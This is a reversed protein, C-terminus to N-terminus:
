PCKFPSPCTTKSTARLQSWPGTINAIFLIAFPMGSTDAQDFAQFSPHPDGLSHRNPCLHFLFTPLYASSTFPRTLWALSRFNFSFFFFFFSCKRFNWFYNDRQLIRHFAFSVPNLSKSTVTASRQILEELLAPGDAISVVRGWHRCCGLESHM